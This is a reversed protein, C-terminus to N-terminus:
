ETKIRSHCLNQCCGLSKPGLCLLQVLLEVFAVAVVPAPVFLFCFCLDLFVVVLQYLVQPLQFFSEKKDM